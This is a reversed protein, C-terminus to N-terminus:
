AWAEGGVDLMLMASCWVGRGWADAAVADVVADEAVVGPQKQVAVGECEVVRFGSGVVARHQRLAAEEGGGVAYEVARVGGDWVIEQAGALVSAVRGVGGVRLVSPPWEEGEDVVGKDVVDDLLHVAVGGRHGGLLVEGGLAFGFVTLRESRAKTAGAGRALVARADADGEFAVVDAGRQLLALACGHAGGSAEVFRRGGVRRWLAVTRTCAASGRSPAAAGVPPRLRPVPPPILAARVPRPLRPPIYHLPVISPTRPHLVPSVGARGYLLALMSLLALSSLACPVRLRGRTPVGALRMDARAPAERTPLAPCNQLDARAPFPRLRTLFPRLRTLFPCLQITCLALQQSHSSVTSLRSDRASYIAIQAHDGPWIKCRGFAPRM